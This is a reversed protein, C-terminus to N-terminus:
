HKNSFSLTPSMTIWCHCSSLNTGQRYYPFEICASPALNQEWDVREWRSRPFRGWRTLVLQRLVDCLFILSSLKDCGSTGLNGLLIFTCYYTRMHSCSYLNSLLVLKVKIFNFSKVYLTFPCFFRATSVLCYTPLQFYVVYDDDKKTQKSPYSFFSM